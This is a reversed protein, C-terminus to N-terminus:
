LCFTLLFINYYVQNKHSIAFIKAFGNIM